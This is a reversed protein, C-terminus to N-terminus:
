LLRLGTGTWDNWRGDPRLGKPMFPVPVFPAHLRCYTKTSPHRQHFATGMLGPVEIVVVM